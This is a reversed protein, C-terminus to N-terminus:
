SSQYVNGAALTPPAKTPRDVSPNRPTAMEQPSKPYQRTLWIHPRPGTVLTFWGFGAADEVTKNIQLAQRASQVAAEVTARAGLQQYFKSNFAEFQKIHVPFRTYVVAAIDGKLMNGLASPTVTIPDSVKEPPPMTFQLIVLRVGSEAAQSLLQSIDWWAVRAQNPDVMSLRVSGDRSIQGFGVYHLIDFPEDRITQLVDNPQPNSLLKLALGANVIQDHLANLMMDFKPSEHNQERYVTPYKWKSPLGVVGLVRIRRSEAPPAAAPEATEVIRVFQVRDDAALFRGRQNPIAALEWPIDALDSEPPIHLRVLVEDANGLVALSRAVEGPFLARALLRGLLEVEESASVRRRQAWRFMAETLEDGLDNLTIPQEPAIEPETTIRWSSRSGLIWLDVQAHIHWTRGLQQWVDKGLADRWKRVALPPHNLAQRVQGFAEAAKSIPIAGGGLADQPDKSSRVVATVAAATTNLVPGGSMGWTVQKGAELQLQQVLGTNNEVRPHGQVKFVELAAKQGEERPYGALYYEAEGLQGSLLVCPQLAESPDTEAESRDTEVQLLALDLGTEPESAVVTARRAKGRFPEVIVETEDKVVHACTLLQNETFFFATGRPREDVLVLATCQELLTKLKDLTRNPEM